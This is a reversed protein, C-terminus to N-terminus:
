LAASNESLIPFLDPKDTNKETQEAATKNIDNQNLEPSSAFYVDVLLFADAVVPKWFEKKDWEQTLPALMKQAYPVEAEMTILYDGIGNFFENEVKLIKKSKFINMKDSNKAINSLFYIKFWSPTSHSLEYIIYTAIKIKLNIREEDETKMRAVFSKRAEEFYDTLLKGSENKAKM